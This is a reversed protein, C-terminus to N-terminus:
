HGEHSLAHTERLELVVSWKGRVSDWDIRTQPDVPPVEHPVDYRFLVIDGLDHDESVDVIGFPTEFMTAGRQVDVGLRSLGTILGVKQPLLPHFHRALFGGGVPYHLVKFYLDTLSVDFHTGAVKNQVDRMTTALLQAGHRVPGELQHLSKLGYQHFVHPCASAYSGDDIRHYNLEPLASPSSGHPFAANEQGWRVVAHRFSLMDDTPYAGKLVIVHGDGVEAAIRDWPVDVKVVDDDLWAGHRIARAARSAPLM